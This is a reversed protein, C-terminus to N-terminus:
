KNFSYRIIVPNDDETIRNFVDLSNKDLMEPDVLLPLWSADSVFYLSKEDWSHPPPLQLQKGVEQWTTILSNDRKNYRTYSYDGNFIFCVWIYNQTDFVSTVFAFRGPNDDMYNLREERTTSEPVDEPKFTKESFSISCVSVPLLENPCIKLLQNLYNLSVYLDGNFRTFTNYPDYGSFGILQSPLVLTKKIAKGLSNSHFLLTNGQYSNVGAEFVYVDESLVKFRGLRQLEPDLRHYELFSGDPTYVAIRSFPELIELNGTFPNIDFDIIGLYEGPGRGRFGLTSYQFRGSRDFVLIASQGRDWIYYYNETIMLKSCGSFVSERNTELPILQISDFFLSPHYREAAEPDIM